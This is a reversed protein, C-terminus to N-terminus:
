REYVENGWYLKFDKVEGPFGQQNNYVVVKPWNELYKYEGIHTILDRKNRRYSIRVQEGNRFELVKYDGPTLQPAYWEGQITFKPEPAPQSCSALLLLFLPIHKM